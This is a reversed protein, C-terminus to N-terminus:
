RTLTEIQGAPYRDGSAAGIPAAEDLQRYDPPPPVRQPANDTM